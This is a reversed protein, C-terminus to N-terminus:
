PFNSCGFLYTGNRLTGVSSQEGKLVLTVHKPGDKRGQVTVLHRSGDPESFYLTQGPQVDGARVTARVRLSGPQDPRVSLVHVVVPIVAVM